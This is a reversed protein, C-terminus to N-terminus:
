IGTGSCYLQSEVIFPAESSTSQRRGRTVSMSKRGEDDINSCYVNWQLLYLCSPYTHLMILPFLFDSLLPIFLTPPYRCISTICDVGAGCFGNV